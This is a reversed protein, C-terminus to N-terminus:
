LKIKRLRLANSIVSVSSFSMAAAAIVPSLLLCFFPYLIGAAVPIGLANYIFAFFLNQRINKMTARSLTCARVIGILDGKILTIAASQIAVDTGTGMAIGVQAQAIAPADNVGDGAMAVIRGQSQHKKVIQNKQEPLVHAEVRDIALEKAVADATAQSDGTVMIIEVGMRHLLRIAEPTSKKIPDVVSILGIPERDAIVYMITHGMKQQSLAFDKLDGADLHETDLFAQNGLGVLHGNVRGKIGRGPCVEIDTASIKDYNRRDAYELIAQSLPHESGREIAAALRLLHTEDMGNKPIIDVVKPKGETITGTKDIILTDVKEMIELAEANKILVGASAGRGAAVMISMPTALGLACPCAIILVAVANVIAYSLRPQPGLSAWLFFTILSIVIVTPVFWSAVSDAIRQIPARSRQADSVMRVIQALLTDRGIKEAQMIMSGTANVTGGILRDGPGKEVPISEGTIMSEDLVSLGEIVTGDVPIKEGPRVRLRDGVQVQDLPIDKESGDDDIRRAMKPALNMLTKIADSTRSRAHLELVQGLLVLAVIMASSEFYVDIQGSANRFPVPFIQPFITAVLSYLYATLVGIGILTFMNLSRNLISKWARQFIIWGCLLVFTTLILEVWAPYGDLPNLLRLSDGAIHRAMALFVVPLTFILSLWFRRTMEKLEPNGDDSASAPEIPELAMGCKPCIGPGIQVVEQDMPCIYKTGQPITPSPGPTSPIKPKLYQQPDAKFKERCHRCCFYYTTGNYELSPQATDTSVSMGCVPDISSM